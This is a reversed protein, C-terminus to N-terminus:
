AHKVEYCELELIDKFSDLLVIKDRQIYRVLSEDCNYAYFKIGAHKAMLYDSVHNGIYISEHSNFDYQEQVTNFFKLSPKICAIQDSTIIANFIYEMDFHKLIKQKDKLVGDSLIILMIGKTKLLKLTEIVDSSIVCESLFYSEFEFKSIIKDSYSRMAKCFVGYYDFVSKIFTLDVEYDIDDEGKSNIDSFLKNNYDLIDCMFQKAQNRTIGSKKIMYFMTNKIAISFNYLTDDFDLMVCRIM